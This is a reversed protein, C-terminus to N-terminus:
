LIPGVEMEEKGERWGLITNGYAPSVNGYNTAELCLQGPLELAQTARSARKGKAGELLSAPTVLCM